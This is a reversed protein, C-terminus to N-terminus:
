TNQYRAILHRDNYYINTFGKGSCGKYLVLRLIRGAAMIM